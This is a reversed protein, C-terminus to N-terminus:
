FSDEVIKTYKELWNCYTIQGCKKFAKEFDTGYCLKSIIYDNGLNGLSQFHELALDIEESYYDLSNIEYFSLLENKEKLTIKNLLKNGKENFENELKHKLIRNEETYEEQIFFETERLPKIDKIRKRLNILFVLEKITQESIEGFKIERGINLSFERHEKIKDLANSFDRGSLNYRTMIKKKNKDFTAGNNIDIMNSIDKLQERSLKNTFIGTSYDNDLSSLFYNYFCSLQNILIEYKKYFIGIHIMRKDNLNLTKKDSKYTYRFADSEVDFFYDKVYLDFDDLTEFNTKISQDFNQICKFNEVLEEISHLSLSKRIKKCFEDDDPLNFRKLYIKLLKSIILKLYLEISHRCSFFLPYICTDQLESGSEISQFLIKANTRYGDIIILDREKSNIGSNDGICAFLSTDRYFNFDEFPTLESLREKKM